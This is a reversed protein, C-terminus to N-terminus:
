FLFNYDGISTKQLISAIRDFSQTSRPHWHSFRLWYHKTQDMYIQGIVAFNKKIQPGCHEQRTWTYRQLICFITKQKNLMQMRRKLFIFEVFFLKDLDGPKYKASIQHCNVNQKHLFCNNAVNFFFKPIYIRYAFLYHLIDDSKLPINAHIEVCVNQQFRIVIQM